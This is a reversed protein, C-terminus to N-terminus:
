GLIRAQDTGLIDLPSTIRGVYKQSVRTYRM